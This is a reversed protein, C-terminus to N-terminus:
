AAAGEAAPRRLRRNGVVVAGAHDILDAGTDAAETHAITDPDRKGPIATRRAARCLLEGDDGASRTKASGTPASTSSPALMPMGATVACRANVTASSPGDRSCGPASPPLVTNTAPPAPATPLAGGDRWGGAPKRSTPGTSPM